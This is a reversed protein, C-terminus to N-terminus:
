IQRKIVKRVAKARTFAGTNIVLGATENNAKIRKIM